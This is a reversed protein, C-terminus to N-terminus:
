RLILADASIELDLTFVTSTGNKEVAVKGGSALTASGGSIPVNVKVKLGSIPKGSWNQLTLLTGAKSEILTAEVAGNGTEIPRVLSQLPLTIFGEVTKNFTTPIFHAMADDTSGRDLPKMPTAPHFWSLSPLFGCTIVEGRGIKRVAVAPTGSAFVAAAMAESTKLTLRSKAGFVPFSTDKESTGPNPKMAVTDVPKVFPLDQKIFKVQEGQVLDTQEVGALTRLTENPRNYEDLQGAGATLFLKGGAQVWEAIKKSSARSVHPDTLYLVKYKALTGDAADQDVVFDLPLQQHLLAVYLGRKAAANSGQNDHWIDATESFWLGVEAPRRQGTQIIDEYTGLERFAKLVTAYMEEGTVHNETYAIWVPEFEFLNVITMGHALANYFLRRWMNPTNGPVHPMVYYLIKRNPKGRQGARFLDLNIGNMQQTGIPVQWAYDEAWPLTMGDERFCNVWQFVPALYSHEYGGHHPSFNAGIHANPLHKRLADTLEKIKAIGYAHQFRASWYYLGPKTDKLKPDANFQIKSWDDGAAPDVDKPTVGQKKLFEAFGETAAKADPQPLGIEDGLSVVAIRTRQEPSLAKCKEELQAPSLGRWDVYSTATTAKAPDQTSLGYLPAFEAINTQAYILTQSPTKGSPPQKRLFDILRAVAEIQTDIRRVYRTDAYAVFTMPGNLDLTRLPEVVAGTKLGLEIKVLASADLAWQGDNLSDILGGVEIWDTTKGPEVEIALPKWKRQHVWYPSHETSQAVKVTAKAAGANTIKLWVDGSQTLLGDLPLYGEKAIRQEVDATDRTLLVLDVNRKAPPSPQKGAILSIKAPGPQLDAFADHGEWVVNEVAGWDWAIEKQIKQGFAWIKPNQRGGYMRDLLVKGGQEVKIRFQTEFRYAAEYRALVLYRGAEAVTIDRTAVSEDGEEPAGLFAKRSLFTNALTAAFYNEGWKRAKWGPSQVQFEEAECVILGDPQPTVPRSKGLAQAAASADPDAASAAVAQTVLLLAALATRVPM